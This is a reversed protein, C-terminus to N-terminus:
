NISKSLNIFEKPSVPLTRLTRKNVDDLEEQSFTSNMPNTYIEINVESYSSKSDLFFALGAWVIVVVFLLIIASIYKKIIDKM